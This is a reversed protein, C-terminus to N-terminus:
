AINWIKILKDESGSVILSDSLTTLCSIFNSHANEIMIERIKTAINYVKISGKADGVAFM